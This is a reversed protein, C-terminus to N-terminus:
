PGASAVSRGAKKTHGGARSTNGSVGAPGDASSQTGLALEPLEDQVTECQSPAEVYGSMLRGDGAFGAAQSHGVLDPGEGDERCQSPAPLRQPAGGQCLPRCSSADIPGRTQAIPGFAFWVKPSQWSSQHM